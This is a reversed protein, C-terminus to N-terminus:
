MQQTVRVEAVEKELAVIEERMASLGVEEGDVPRNEALQQELFEIKDKLMCIEEANDNVDSKELPDFSLLDPFKVTSSRPRGVNSKASAGSRSLGTLLTPTKAEDFEEAGKPIPTLMILDRQPPCVVNQVVPGQTVVDNEIDSLPMRDLSFSQIPPSKDNIEKRVRYPTPKRTSCSKRGKKATTVANEDEWPSLPIEIKM